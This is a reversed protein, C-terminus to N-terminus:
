IGLSSLRRCCDIQKGENFVLGFLDLFRTTSIVEPATEFLSKWLHVIHSEIAERAFGNAESVDKVSRLKAESKKLQQKYNVLISSEVVGGKKLISVIRDLGRTGFSVHPYQEWPPLKTGDQHYVGLGNKPKIYTEIVYEMVRFVRGIVPGNFSRNGAYKFVFCCFALMYRIDDSLVFLTEAVFISLEVGLRVVEEKQKEKTSATCTTNTDNYPSYRAPPLKKKRRLVRHTTMSISEMQKSIVSIDSSSM